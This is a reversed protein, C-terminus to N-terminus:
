EGKFEPTRKEAFAARGEAADATLMCYSFMDNEYRLGVDISASQAVRVLNKSSQVAIPGKEAITAALATAHAMLSDRAVLDQVLGIRHAEAADIREGSFLLKSAHGPGIARTLYQTAGSGGHWGWRIEGAGFSADPSAVRIDSACALELGGGVCYGFIAAVVPKRVGWLGHVYDKQADFRNRYEWNTGYEDLDGIDSGACFAKEGAGTLVVARITNDLNIERCLANFRADMAVTMSNLKEPRDITLTAVYGNRELRLLQDTTM